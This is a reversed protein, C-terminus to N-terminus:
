RIRLCCTLLFLSMNSWSDSLTDSHLLMHTLVFVHQELWSLQRIPAVHSYTEFVHQRWDSVNDQNKSCTKTWLCTAGILCMHRLPAVHSECTAGSLCMTEQILVVHRDLFWSLTDQNKSLMDKNKSVHQEM